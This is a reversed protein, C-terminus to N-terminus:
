EGHTERKKYGEVGTLATNRYIKALESMQIAREKERLQLEREIDGVADLAESYEIGAQRAEKLRQGLNAWNGTAVTKSLETLAFRIGTIEQKLLDGTQQTSAM